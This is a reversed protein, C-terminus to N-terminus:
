KGGGAGFALYKGAYVASSGFASEIELLRNYKAVREGRSVSGIKVQHLGWGVAMDIISADNTEGSRHSIIGQLQHDTLLKWADHTESYTGIQNPKLIVASITDAAIAERVRTINTVTLDDGVVQIKDGLRRYFLKWGDWDDEALPDEISVIPFEEVLADFLATLQEATLPQGEFIYSGDRYFESAAVDLALSLHKGPEYGAKKIAEVMMDLATHHNDIDPAYGGEDGVAKSYGRGQLVKGLAQFTESLARLAEHYSDFGHPIYMFEQISLSNDAHAGGNIVNCLPVPITTHKVGAHHSIHEFLQQHHGASRARLAALSVALVANAGLRSKDVTGDTQRLIADLEHQSKTTVGKLASALEVNIHSVAKAVGKGNWRENGDRLELAEHSGTSAGSPVAATGSGKDSVVTAEVTPYGRSDLIMRGSVKTIKM